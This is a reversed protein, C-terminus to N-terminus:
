WTKFYSLHSITIPIKFTLIRHANKKERQRKLINGDSKQVMFDMRFNDAFIQLNNLLSECSIKYNLPIIHSLIWNFQGNFHVHFDWEYHQLEHACLPLMEHDHIKDANSYWQNRQKLNWQRTAAAAAAYVILRIFANGHWKENDNWESCMTLMIHLM